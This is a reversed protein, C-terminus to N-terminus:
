RTVVLVRTRAHGDGTAYRVVYQGPALGSLATAEGVADFRAVARGLVDFVTITGHSPHRVTVDGVAPNPYVSFEHGDSPSPERDAGGGDIPPPPGGGPESPYVQGNYATPAVYDPDGAGATDPRSPPPSPVYPLR